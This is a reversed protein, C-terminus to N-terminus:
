SEHDRFLDNQLGAPRFELVELIKYRNSFRGSATRMQTIQLKVKYSDKVFAGGREIAQQAIDTQLIDMYEVKDGYQFRWKDAKPHYVPAYVQIWATVIQPEEQGVIADTPEIELINLAEPKTIRETVKKNYEFELFEYGQESLPRVISKAGEVFETDRALEYVQRPVTVTSTAQNVAEDSIRFGHM